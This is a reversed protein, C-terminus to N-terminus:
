FLGEQHWKIKREGEPLEHKNSLQFFYNETLWQLKERILIDGVYDMICYSRSLCKMYAWLTGIEWHRVFVWCHDRLSHPHLMWCQGLYTISEKNEQKSHKQELKVRVPYIATFSRLHDFPGLDAPWKWSLNFSATIWSTVVSSRNTRHQKLNWFWPEREGDDRTTTKRTWPASTSWAGFFDNSSLFSKISLM